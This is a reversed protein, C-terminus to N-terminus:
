HLQLVDLVEAILAALVVHRRADGMLASFAAGRLAEAGRNKKRVSGSNTAWM